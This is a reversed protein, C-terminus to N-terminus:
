LYQHVQNNNKRSRYMYQNSTSFYAYFNRDHLLEKVHLYIQGPGHIVTVHVSSVM